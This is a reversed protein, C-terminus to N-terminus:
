KAHFLKLMRVAPVKGGEAKQNIKKEDTPWECSIQSSIANSAQMTKLHRTVTNEVKGRSSQM